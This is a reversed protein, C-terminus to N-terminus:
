PTLPLIFHVVDFIMISKTKIIFFSLVIFLKLVAKVMPFAIPLAIPLVKKKLFQQLRSIKKKEKKSNSKKKKNNILIMLCLLVDVFAFM